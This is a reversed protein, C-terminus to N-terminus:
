GTDNALEIPSSPDIGMIKLTCIQTAWTVSALSSSTILIWGTSGCNTGGGEWSWNARWGSWLAEEGRGNWVGVTRETGDQAAQVFKGQGSVSRASSPWCMDKCM